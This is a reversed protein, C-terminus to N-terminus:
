GTLAAKSASLSRAHGHARGPQRTHDHKGVVKVVQVPRVIVTQVVTAPRSVPPEDVVEGDVVEALEPLAVTGHEATGQPTGLREVIEADTNDAM